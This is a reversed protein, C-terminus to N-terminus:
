NLFTSFWAVAYLGFEPVCDLHDRTLLSCNVIEVDEAGNSKFYDLATVANFYPVVLDNEGHYLRTPAKPVWQYITNERLANKADNEGDGRIDALFTENFLEATEQTLEENIEGATKSGDFLGAARTAYPEKFFDSHPRNWNYAENFGLFAFVQFVPQAQTPRKIHYMATEYLDYAGAGIFSATVRFEDPHNTEIERQLAMTAFGGESYGMLFLRDGYQVGLESMLKVSARLMDLSASATSAAHHYPHLIQKSEGFGLYDPVVAISGMAIAGAGQPLAEGGESAAEAHSTITGHQVSIIGNPAVFKPISVAGSATIFDGATDITRYVVKYHTASISYLDGTAIISYSLLQGRSQSGSSSDTRSGSSGCALLGTLLFGVTLVLPIFTRYIRFNLLTKHM